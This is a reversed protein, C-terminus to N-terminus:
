NEENEKNSEKEKFANSVALELKKEEEAIEQEFKELEKTAKELMIKSQESQHEKFYKFKGILEDITSEVESIKTPIKIGFESLKLIDDPQLILKEGTSASVSNTNASSLNKKKKSKASAPKFFVEEKKKFIVLDNDIVRTASAKINDIAASVEGIISSAKDAKIEQPIEKHILNAFYTILLKISNLESEFASNNSAAKVDEKLQKGVQLKKLEIQFKKEDNAIRKQENLMDQKFKTYQENYDSNIQKIENYISRKEDYLSDKKTFFGKKLDHNSGTLKTLEGNVTEYKSQIEKNDFNSLEKKLESIKAKDSDISKQLADINVFDKKLKQLSTLEKINKREDVIKLNGSNISNELNEIKKNIEGLSKYKLNKSSIESLKKKLSSNLVNMKENIALRKNKLDSQVKIIENRESKLQNVKTNDIKLGSLESNLKNIELDISKIKAQLAKVKADREKQDPGKIFRKVPRKPLITQEDFSSM